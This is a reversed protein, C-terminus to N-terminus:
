KIRNDIFTVNLRENKVHQQVNEPTVLIGFDAYEKSRNKEFLRNFVIKGIPKIVHSSDSFNVMEQSIHNYTCFDVYPQIMALEKKWYEFTDGLGINYYMEIHRYFVPSTYLTCSVNYDHCMDITKRVIDIKHDISTPTKFPESHLFTKETAYQNLVYNINSQVQQLTLEQSQQITQTTQTTQIEKIPPPSPTTEQPFNNQLTKTSMIFTKFNFLSVMYDNWHINESMRAPEYSRDIPKTPNFSFFDLSWVVHKLRHHKIMYRIYAAQEDITSGALALNYIPHEVYSSLQDESFVGIRSTGMLITKPELRNAIYFKSMRDSLLHEKKPFFTDLSHNYIYYPNVIFNFLSVSIIVFISSLLFYKLWKKSSV